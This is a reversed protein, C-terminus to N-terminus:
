SMQLNRHKVKSLLRKERITNHEQISQEGM